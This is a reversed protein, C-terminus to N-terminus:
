DEVSEKIFGKDPSKQEQGSERESKQRFTKGGEEGGTGDRGRHSGCAYEAGPVAGDCVFIDKHEDTKEYIFYRRETIYLGVRIDSKM